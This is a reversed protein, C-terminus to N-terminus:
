YKTHTTLLIWINEWCSVPRVIIMSSLEAFFGTSVGSLKSDLWVRDGFHALHLFWPTIDIRLPCLRNQLHFSQAQGSQLRIASLCLTIAACTANRRCCCCSLSRLFVKSKDKKFLL